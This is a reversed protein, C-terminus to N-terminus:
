YCVSDSERHQQLARAGVHILFRLMTMPQTQQSWQLSRRRQQWRPPEKVVPYSM